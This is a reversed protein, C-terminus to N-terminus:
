VTMLLKKVHNKLPSKRSVAVLFFKNTSAVICYKLNMDIIFHEGYHDALTIINEILEKLNTEIIPYNKMILPNDDDIARFFHFVSSNIQIDLEQIKDVIHNFKVEEFLIMKKTIKNHRSHFNSIDLYFYEEIFAMVKENEKSDVERFQIKKLFSKYEMERMVKIPSYTSIYFIYFYSTADIIFKHYEDYVYFSAVEFINILDVIHKIVDGLRVEIAPSEYYLLSIFVKSDLNIKFKKCENTLCNSDYCCKEYQINKIVTFCKEEIKISDDNSLIKYYDFSKLILLIDEIIFERM